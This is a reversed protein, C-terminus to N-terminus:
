KDNERRAGPRTSRRGPATHGYHTPKSSILDLPIKEDLFYYLDTAVAHPVGRTRWNNAWQRSGSVAHGLKQRYEAFRRGFEAYYGSGKIWVMYRILEDMNTVLSPDILKEPGRGSLASRPEKLVKTDAM